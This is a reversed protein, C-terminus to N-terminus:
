ASSMGLSNTFSFSSIGPTMMSVPPAPAMSASIQTFIPPVGCVHRVDFLQMVRGARGARHHEIAQDAPAIGSGASMM